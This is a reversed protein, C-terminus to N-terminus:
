GVSLQREDVRKWWRGVKIHTIAAPTVNFDRAIDICKDKNALRERITVVDAATLKAWHHREGHRMHKAPRKQKPLRNIMRAYHQANEKHTVYELNSLRANTKVGDIHNVEKGEPPPGIFTQMVLRHVYVARMKGGGKPIGMFLYGGKGRETPKKIRYSGDRRLRRVRGLSSVEYRSLFGLGICERWEENELEETTFEPIAM